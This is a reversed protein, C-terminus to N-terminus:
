DIRCVWIDIETDTFIDQVILSVRKWDLGDIGCGILPMAIKDINNNLCIQKMALLANTVSQYTPKQYVREKTILNFTRGELICTGNLNSKSYYDVYMPYKQKLINKMNYRRNFEVVIGAGMGFDASICHALYYDDPVTFLDKIEEKYNM